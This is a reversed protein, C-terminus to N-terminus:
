HRIRITAGIMQPEAVFTSITSSATTLTTPTVASGQLPADFATNIYHEDFLNRAFFEVGLWEDSTYLGLKLGFVAFAEQVKRPDLNSGTNMESQWRGDMHITFLMDGFVQM